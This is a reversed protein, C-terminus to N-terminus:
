RRIRRCTRRREGYRYRTTCVTRYGRYYRGRGYGRTRSAYRRTTTTRRVVQGNRNRVVTTQRVQTETALPVANAPAPTAPLAFAAAIVAVLMPLKM